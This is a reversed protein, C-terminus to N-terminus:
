RQLAVVERNAFELRAAIMRVVFRHFAYALTPNDAEMQGLAERSLRYVITPKDAVVSASRSMTRYLGMEGVMTHQVISRLRVEKGDPSHFVVTVRGAYILYLYDAPDGQACITEGVEYEIMDLYSVLQRVLSRDGIERALWEDASHLAEERGVYRALLGEECWELAADLAPFVKCVPDDPDDRLFGGSKLSQEALPSLNSLVILLGAREAFQRLKVLSLVASSDIGLVEHFDLIVMRCADAPNASVTEKIHRLLRNASGFFIFGHLWMIHIGNGYSMLEANQSASRDVRSSFDRRSAELKVLPVQSSSVAFTICAVAVGVIVGAVFGWYVIVVLIAVVQVYDSRHLRRWGYGLWEVLMGGGARMLMAGLITAPVYALAASGFALTVLCCGAVIVGSGRGRAGSRYNFITRSLSLTGVTGGLAAAAINALGNLRLERDLDIDEDLRADIEVSAIGLLLTCATVAFLAVYEGAERIIPAWDLAHRANFLWLDPWVTGSPMALLWGARQADAVSLGALRLAVHALAVAGFLLAPFAIVHKSREVVMMAAVFALAAALQELQLAQFLGGLAHWSVDVGTLLHVANAVLLWGSAAIFGGIVPYPVYRIWHGIKWKGFLFLVLGTVLTGAVLALVVSAGTTTGQGTDNLDRAVTAALVALIATPKSDPGAIAFSIGSGLAFVIALVCAGILGYGIGVPLISALPGSFIAASYSITSAIVIIATVLGSIIDKAAM